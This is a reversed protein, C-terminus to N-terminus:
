VTGGVVTEFCTRNQLLEVRLLVDPMSWDGWVPQPCNQSAVNPLIEPPPPGFVGAPAVSVLACLGSSWDLKALTALVMVRHMFHAWKCSGQRPGDSSQSGPSQIVVTVLLLFVQNLVTEVMLFILIMQPLLDWSLAPQLNLLEKNDHYPSPNREARWEGGM